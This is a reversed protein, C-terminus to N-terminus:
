KTVEAKAEIEEILQRTYHKMMNRAKELFKGNLSKGSKVWEAMYSGSPADCPRFGRGNNVITDQCNREDVTQRSHILLLAREVAKPNKELLEKVSDKNWGLKTALRAM